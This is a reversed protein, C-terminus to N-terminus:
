NKEDTEISEKDGNNSLVNLIPTPFLDKDDDRGANLQPIARPAMKIILEKKFQSWRKVEPRDEMVAIAAEVIKQRLIKSSEPDYAIKRAM